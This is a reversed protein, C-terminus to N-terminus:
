QKEKVTVFAGVEAVPHLAPGGGLRSARPLILLGLLGSPPLIQATGGGKKTIGREQSPGTLAKTAIRFTENDIKM